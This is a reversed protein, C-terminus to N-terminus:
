AEKKHYTYLPNIDFEWHLKKYIKSHRFAYNLAYINLNPYKIRLDNMNKFTENWEICKINIYKQAKPSNKRIESLKKKIEESFKIGKNKGPKGKLRESIARKQEITRKKGKNASVLGLEKRKNEAAWRKESWKLGKHSESLIKRMKKTPQGQGGGEILNWCYKKGLHPNVYKAELLNLDEQNTICYELITKTIGLEILHEPKLRYCTKNFKRLYDKLIRGSGCYVYEKNSNNEAAMTRQGWYYFTGKNTKITTKYVYGYIEAM